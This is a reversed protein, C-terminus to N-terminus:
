VVNFLSNATKKIYLVYLVPMLHLHLYLFKVMKLLYTIERLGYSPQLLKASPYAADILGIWSCVCHATCIKVPPCSHRGKPLRPGRNFILTVKSWMLTVTLHCRLWNGAISSLAGMNLFGFTIIHWQSLYNSIHILLEYFWYDCTIRHCWLYQCYAIVAVHANHILFFVLLMVYIHLM